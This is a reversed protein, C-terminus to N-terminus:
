SATIIGLLPEMSIMMMTTGEDICLFYQNTCFDAMKTGSAVLYKFYSLLNYKENYLYFQWLFPKNQLM